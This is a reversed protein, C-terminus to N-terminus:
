DATHISLRTTQMSEVEVSFGDSCGLYVANQPRRVQFHSFADLNYSLSWFEDM